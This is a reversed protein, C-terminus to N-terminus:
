SELAKALSDLVKQESVSIAAMGLFGGASRAIEEARRLITAKLQNFASPEMARKIEVIYGRWADLLEHPPQQKLWSELLGFSLTGPQLNNEAAAKLIAEKENTQVVGDAWAVSLLPIMSFAVLSEATIGAAAIQDIVNDDAIGTVEKLTERVEEGELKKRLQELLMQNQKQFFLEELAHGRKQLSDDM